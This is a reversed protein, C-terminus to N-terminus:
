YAVSSNKERNLINKSLSDGLYCTDENVSGHHSPIGDISKMINEHNSAVGGSKFFKKNSAFRLPKSKRLAVSEFNFIIYM